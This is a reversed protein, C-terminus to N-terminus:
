LEMRKLTEESRYGSGDPHPHFIQLVLRPEKAYNWAEHVFSDDFVLVEGEKWGRTANSEREDGVRIGLKKTSGKPIKIGLHMNIRDNRRGAHVTLYTGPALVLFAVQGIMAGRRLSPDSMIVNCTEPCEQCAEDDLPNLEGQGLTFDKWVGSIALGADATRSEILGRKLLRLGEKRIKAYGRKLAIAGPMDSPWWPKAELSPASFLPFQFESGWFVKQKGNYRYNMAFQEFLNRTALEEAKKAKHIAGFMRNLTKIYCIKDSETALDKKLEDICFSNKLLQGM